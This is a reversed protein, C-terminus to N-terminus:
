YEQPVDLQRPDRCNTVWRHSVRSRDFTSKVHVAWIERNARLNGRSGSRM